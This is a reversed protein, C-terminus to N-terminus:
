RLREVAEEPGGVMLSYGEELGWVGGSTGADVYQLDKAALTEARRLTDTYRSNGGDVILDSADLLPEVAAITEDVPDGAPVMLWLSRPPALRSVVDEISSAGEAGAEVAAEVAEPRLDYAVVEHGGRVLRKTMNAGMKGLGIMALKM